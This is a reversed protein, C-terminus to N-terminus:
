TLAFILYSIKTKWYIENNILASPFERRVRRKIEKKLNCEESDKISSYGLLCADLYYAQGHPIQAKHNESIFARTKMYIDLAPIISDSGLGGRTASGIRECNKYLPEHVIVANNIRQLYCCLFEADEAGKIGPTFTIGHLLTKKFLKNWACLRISPPMDFYRSFMAEQSAIEISGSKQMFPYPRNVHGDDDVYEYGCVSLDTKNTIMADLLHEFMQPAVFDDSDCFGIYEGQAAKLGNNRAVSVGQNKQHIVKVRSDRAAFEDCIAPCGDPSGDDILIIEIDRYTQALLSEVCKSLFREVKYVPVIISIM